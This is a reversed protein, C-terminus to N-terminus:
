VEQDKAKGAFSVTLPLADDMATLCDGIWTVGGSFEDANTVVSGAAVALKGEAARIAGKGSTVSITGGKLNIKGKDGVEIWLHGGAYLGCSRRALGSKTTINGGLITLDGARACVARSWLGQKTDSFIFLTDNAGGCLTMDGMSYLVAINADAQDSVVQLRNDGELVIMTGDPVALAIDATTQFTLNRLTLVNGCGVYGGVDAIEETVEGVFKEQNEGCNRGIHLKSDTQNYVLTYDHLM